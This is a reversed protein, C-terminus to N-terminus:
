SPHRESFTGMWYSLVETAQQKTIGIEEELFPRAGYMNTRGSVRLEDLYVLCEQLTEETVLKPKEM